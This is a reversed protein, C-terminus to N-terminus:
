TAGQIPTAPALHEATCTDPAPGSSRKWQCGVEQTYATPYHCGACKAPDIWPESPQPTYIDVPEPPTNANTIQAGLWGGLHESALQHATRAPHLEHIRTLDAIREEDDAIRRRYAFADDPRRAATIKDAVIDMALRVVFGDEEAEPNDVPETSNLASSSSNEKPETKPKEETETEEKTEEEEEEKPSSGGIPNGSPPVRHNAVCIACKPSPKGDPGTHWRKHNGQEGLDAAMKLQAQIDASSRNRKLWASIVWGTKTVNWAGVETLRAAHKKLNPIGIGVTALQHTSIRGDTTPNKKCFALSRIYLLEGLPGAAIMKEDSAYEVDIKVYLGTM